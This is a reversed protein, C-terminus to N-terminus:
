FNSRWMGTVPGMREDFLGILLCSIFVIILQPYVPCNSINKLKLEGHSILSVIFACVYLMYGMFLSNNILYINNPMM